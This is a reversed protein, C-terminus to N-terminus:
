GWVEVQLLEIGAFNGSFNTKLKFYSCPLKSFYQEFTMSPKVPEATVGSEQLEVYYKLNFFKNPM